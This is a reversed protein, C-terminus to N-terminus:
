VHARGIQVREGHGEGDARDCRQGEDRPDDYGAGHVLRQRVSLPARAYHVATVPRVYDYARKCDWAVIGADFVANALAFFLKVDQDLTHGDRRSVFQGFLMWHGPPLGSKPGDAWYEAIAKQIDTLRASYDLIHEAQVRYGGFPFPNGVEPPRFQSDSTVAFPVVRGWHPAIFRPTVTGGHGDSIRL